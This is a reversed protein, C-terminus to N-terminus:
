LCSKSHSVYSSNLHKECFLANCSGYTFFFGPLFYIDHIHKKHRPLEVSHVAHVTGPNSELGHGETAHRGREENRTKLGEIM